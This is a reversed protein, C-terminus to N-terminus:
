TDFIFALEYLFIYNIRKNVEFYLTHFNYFSCIYCFTEFTSFMEESSCVSIDLFKIVKNYVDIKKTDEICRLGYEYGPPKHQNFNWTRNDTECSEKSELDLKPTGYIENLKDM